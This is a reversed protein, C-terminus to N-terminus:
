MYEMTMSNKVVDKPNYYKVQKGYKKVLDLNTSYNVAGDEKVDIVVTNLESNKAMNIIKDVKASSGASPGTLYVAKVKAKEISPSLQLGESQPVQEEKTSDSAATSNAATSDSPKTETSVASSPTTSTSASTSQPDKTGNENCGTLFFSGAAVTMSLFLSTFLVKINKRNKM